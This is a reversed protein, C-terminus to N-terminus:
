WQHSVHLAAIALLAVRSFTRTLRAVQCSFFPLYAIIALRDNSRNFLSQGSARIFLANSKAKPAFSKNLVVNTTTCLFITRM